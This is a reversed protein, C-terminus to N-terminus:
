CCIQLQAQLDSHCACGTRRLQPLLGPLYAPSCSLRGKCEPFLRDRPNVHLSPCSVFGNGMSSVCLPTPACPGLGHRTLFFHNCFPIQEKSSMFVPAPHNLCFLPKTLIFANNHSTSRGRKEGPSSFGSVADPDALCAWCLSLYITPM